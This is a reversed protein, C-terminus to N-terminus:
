VTSALEGTVLAMSSLKGIITGRSHFVVLINELSVNNHALGWAHMHALGFAVDRAVRSLVSRVFFPRIDGLHFGFLTASVFVLCRSGM